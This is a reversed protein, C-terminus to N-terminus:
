TKARERLWAEVTRLDGPTNIGIAERPDTCPITAVVHGRQALWPIFPLFNREGTAAGATTSRAFQQLDREFTERTLSFVGLDSEGEAPMADGERRQLLRLIRGDGDRSFHIYPDARRVTPVIMAPAPSDREADALRELTAPMVGVQDVWTIWVIDPTQRALAPAARLIADLMGTPSAQEAVIAGRVAAWADIAARSDRSAIVVVADVFPAHLQAVRDLM